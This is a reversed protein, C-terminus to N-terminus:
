KVAEDVRIAQTSCTSIFPVASEQSPSTEKRCNGQLQEGIHKSDRTGGGEHSIFLFCKQNERCTGSWPLSKGPDTKWFVGKKRM